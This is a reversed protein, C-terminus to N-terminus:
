TFVDKWSSYILAIGLAGAGFGTMATLNAPIIPGGNATVAFWLTGVGGTLMLGGIVTATIASRVDEKKVYRTSTKRKM